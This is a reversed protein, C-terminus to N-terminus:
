MEARCLDEIETSSFMDMAGTATTKRFIFEDGNIFLTGNAGSYSGVGNESYESGLLKVIMEERSGFMKELYFNQAVPTEPLALDNPLFIMEKKLIESISDAMAVKEQQEFSKTNWLIMGMYINAVILIIIFVTKLRRLDM